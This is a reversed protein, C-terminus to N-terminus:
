PAVVFKRWESASRALDIDSLQPVDDDPQACGSADSFCACPAAESPFLLRHTGVFDVRWEYRGPHLQPRLLYGEDGIMGYRITQHEEWTLGTLARRNSVWLVRRSLSDARVRVVFATSNSSFIDPHFRFAPVSETVVANNTPSILQPLPLVMFGMTDSRMSRISDQTYAFLVYYVPTPTIQEYPDVWEVVTGREGLEEQSLVYSAVLTDAADSAARAYIQYGKLDPDDGIYWRLHVNRGAPVIGTGKESPSFAPTPCEWQPRAPREVDPSTTGCGGAYALCALALVWRSTISSVSM